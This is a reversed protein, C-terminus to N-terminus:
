MSLCLALRMTIIDDDFRRNAPPKGQRDALRHFIVCGGDIVYATHAHTHTHAHTYFIPWYDAPTRFRVFRLQFPRMFIDVHATEVPTVEARGVSDYICIQKRGIEADYSGAISADETPSLSLVWGDRTPEDKAFGLGNSHTRCAPDNARHGNAM